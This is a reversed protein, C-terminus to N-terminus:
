EEANVLHFNEFKYINVHTNEYGNNKEKTFHFGLQIGNSAPLKQIEALNADFDTGYKWLASLFFYAIDFSQFAFKDPETKYNTRFKQVFQKVDNREYNVLSPSFLHLHLNQLYDIEINDFNNWAPMGYVTLSYKDTINNFYRVYNSIVAESNIITILVNEKEKSFLQELGALGHNEEYSLEFERYVNKKNNPLSLTKAAEKKFIDVHKKDSVNKQYVLIINSNSYKESIFNALRSLQINMCPMIKFVNPNNALIEDNPSFPSVLKIEHTKNARSNIQSAVMKLSNLNFPGIILNLENFEPRHLISVLNASDENVDYVYLRVAFGQKKLSDIALVTGELFQIFTFSRYDCADKVQNDDSNVQISEAENLYLPLMLAVKYEKKSHTKNKPVVSTDHNIPQKVSEQEIIKREPISLNNKDKNKKNLPITLFQGSVLNDALGQNITKLEDISVAYFKSISYLTQGKQVKHIYYKKGESKVISDSLQIQVQAKVFYLNVFLFLILFSKKIM